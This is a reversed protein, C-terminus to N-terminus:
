GQAETLVSLKGSIKKIDYNASVDRGTAIDIIQVFRIVNDTQGIDVITGETLAILKHGPALTGRTIEYAENTLPEGDYLKQASSATIEIPRRNVTIPVYYRDTNPYVDFVIEYEGTVNVGGKYVKYSAYKEINTNIDTLSLYGEDTLSINLDLQLTCGDPISIISYDNDGFSLPTGDYYKQLHYLFVKIIKGKIELIGTNYRVDFEDTVNENYQNYLTFDIIQTVTRGADRRYGSVTVRYYYGKALLEALLGSEELVNEAYLYTGDYEKYQYKPTIELIPIVPETVILTGEKLTIDYLETMDVTTSNGKSDYGNQTIKVSKITNFSAGIETQSGTIVIQIDHYSLLSGETIKYTHNILTLGDYEKESSGSEITIRRPVMELKGKEDYVINYNKTVNVGDASVSVSKIYSESSGIRDISGGYTVRVDHGDVFRYPSSKCYEFETAYVVSTGYDVVIDKPKIHVERPKVTLTGYIWTIDYSNLITNAIDMSQFNEISSGNIEGGAIYELSYIVFGEFINDVTGVDTLIRASSVYLGDGAAFGSGGVKVDHCALMEGDYVKSASGTTITIPRKTIEVTGNVYKINYCSTVNGHERSWFEVKMSNAMKGGVYRLIPYDTAQCFDYGIDIDATVNIASHDKGDYVWSKTPTTVTVDRKHVYLSGANFTFSYNDTVDNGDASTVTVKPRNTLKGAKVLKPFEISLAHGYLFKHIENIDCRTNQLPNGDYIKQADYTTIEIERPRINFIGAEFELSYNRTRDRGSEDKIIVSPINEFEGANVFTTFELSMSQGDCVGDGGTIEYSGNSIGTGDYLKEGGLTKIRIVRPLVTLKGVNYTIDYYKTVDVGNANVLKVTPSNRKEGVDVIARDLEVSVVDSYAENNDTKYIDSRLYEGDYIKTADPVTVTFPRPTVTIATTNTMIKYCHSYNNGNEDVIRIAGARPRVTFTMESRNEYDYSFCEIKQGYATDGGLSLEEGYMVEAKNVYVTIKKQEVYFDYEDTYNKKGFFARSVGRVKFKGINRPMEETWEGDVFYEQRVRAFFARAYLDVEDGYEYVNDAPEHYLITGKTAVFAVVAAVTLLLAILILYWYKLIALIRDAIKNLKERYIDYQM